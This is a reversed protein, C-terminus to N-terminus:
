PNRRGIFLNKRFVSGSNIGSVTDRGIFLNGRFEFNEHESDPEFSVLPSKFNVFINRKIECGSLQGKEGSGNWIFISGAGDTTTADNISINYRIINDAWNSAGAYQFLGIGAGENDFSLCYQITSNRVGGDFDFGGGDKANKSTKNKYSICFRIMVNSSEWAWIGVPGNGERPMDWGNNSATCREIIVNESVGVLIGNGSHNDLRTPDGANNEATCDRIIINKSSDRVSGLVNIGSFGNNIATVGQMVINSSNSLNVGAKQFGEARLYTIRSDTTNVLALGNTTNGEKRGAGKLRLGSIHLGSCNRVVISENNGGNIVARKRSTSSIRIKNDSTGHINDLILTGEYTQRGKFFVNLPNSELRSNLEAISRIPRLLTGPNSDKGKESDIYISDRTTSTCATIVLLAILISLIKQM